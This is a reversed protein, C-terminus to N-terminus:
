LMIVESTYPWHATPSNPLLLLPDYFWHVTCRTTELMYSCYSTSGSTTTGFTAPGIPKSRSLTDLFYGWGPLPQRAVYGIWAIPRKGSVSFQPNRMRWSHRSRKGRWRSWISSNTLSGPMCWPVHTVCTGHYMGSDSVLPPPSFKGLLGPAHAVRLIVYRAHPGNSSM